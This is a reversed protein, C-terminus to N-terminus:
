MKSILNEKVKSKLWATLDIMNGSVLFKMEMKIFSKVKDMNKIM